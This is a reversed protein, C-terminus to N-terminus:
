RTTRFNLQVILCRLQYMHSKFSFIETPQKTLLYWDFVRFYNRAQTANKLWVLGQANLRPNLHHLFIKALKSCPPTSEIRPCSSATMTVVTKSLFNADFQAFFYKEFFKVPSAILFSSLFYFCKSHNADNKRRNLKVKNM